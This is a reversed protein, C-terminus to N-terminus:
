DCHNSNRPVSYQDLEDGSAQPLFTLFRDISHATGTSTQFHCKRPIGGHFRRVHDIYSREFRIAPQGSAHLWEEFKHIESEDFASIVTRPDYGLDVNEDM